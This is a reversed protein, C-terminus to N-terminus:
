LWKLAFASAALALVGSIIWHLWRSNIRSGDFPPVPLLLSGVLVISTMAAARVYPLHTVATWVCLLAAVIVLGVTPLWWYLWSRRPGSDEVSPYPAFLVGAGAGVAGALVAPTWGFHSSRNDRAVIARLAFPLLVLGALLGSMVLAAGMPQSWLLRFGVINFCLLLAWFSGIRQWFWPVRTTPGPRSAIIRSSLTNSLQGKVLEWVIRIAILGVISWTFIRPTSEASSAYNWDAQLPKSIDVGAAYVEEDILLDSGAGRLSRDTRAAHALADQSAFFDRVGTGDSLLVGLNHWGTGYSPEASVASRLLEIAAADDGGRALVVALNNASVYSTSDAELAQRYKDVAAGTDGAERHVYAITDLFIPNVPDATTLYEAVDLADDVHGTRGASLMFNNLMAGDVAPEYVDAVAREVTASEAVWPNALMSSVAPELVYFAGEADGQALRERGIESTAISQLRAMTDSPDYASLEWAQTWTAVAGRSDGAASQAAGLQLLLQVHFEEAEHGIGEAGAESLYIWLGNQQEGTYLLDEAARFYKEADAYDGKLYAIEGARVQPLAQGSESEKWQDVTDAAADLDHAWRWFDQLGEAGPQLGAMECDQYHPTPIDAYVASELAPPTQPSTGTGIVAIEYQANLCSFWPTDLVSEPIYARDVVYADGVGRVDIVVEFPRYSPGAIGGVDGLDWTLSTLPRPAPFGEIADKLGPFDRAETLAAALRAQYPAWGPAEDLASDAVAIARDHEGVAGLARSYGIALQSAQSRSIATRYLEVAEQRWQRLQFPRSGGAFGSNMDAMNLRLDALGAWGLPSDPYEERLEEYAQEAFTVYQTGDYGGNGSYQEAFKQAATQAKIWLPRADDGCIEGARDAEYTVADWPGLTERSVFFTLNLQTACSPHEESVQRLITYVLAHANPIPVDLDYSAHDGSAYRYMLLATLDHISGESADEHMAARVPADVLPFYWPYTLQDGDFELAEWTNSQEIREADARWAPMMQDLGVDELLEEILADVEAHDDEDVGGPFLERVRSDDPLIPFQQLLDPDIGTFEPEVPETSERGGASVAGSSAFLTGSILASTILFVALALATISRWRGSARASGLAM